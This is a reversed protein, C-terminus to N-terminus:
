KWIIQLKPLSFEIQLPSPQCRTPFNCSSNVIIMSKHYAEMLEQQKPLSQALKQIMEETIKEKIESPDTSSLETYIKQEELWYKAVENSVDEVNRLLLMIKCLEKAYVQLLIM